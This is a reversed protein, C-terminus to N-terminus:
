WVRVCDEYQCLDDPRIPIESIEQDCDFRNVYKRGNWPTEIFCLRVCDDLMKRGTFMFLTDVFEGNSTLKEHQIQAIDGMVFCRSTEPLVDMQVERPPCVAREAWRLANVTALYANGGNIWKSNIVLDRNTKYTRRDCVERLSDINQNKVACAYNSKTFGKTCDKLDHNIIVQSYREDTSKVNFSDKIVEFATIVKIEDEPDPPCYPKVLIKQCIDDFYISINLEKAMCDLLEGVDQVECFKVDTIVDSPRKCAYDGLSNESLFPEMDEGCCTVSVQDLNACDYMLCRIVNRAHTNEFHKVIEVRDGNKHEKIESGCVGREVLKFNWGQPNVDENICPIVHMMEDGVCIYKTSLFCQDIPGDNDSLFNNSLIFANVFKDPNKNPEKVTADKELIVGIEMQIPQGYTTDLLRKYEPCTAKGFGILSTPDSATFCVGCDKNPGEVRDIFFVSKVMEEFGMNCGGQWVNIRRGEFYKQAEILRALVFGGLGDCAKVDQMCLRISGSGKFMAGPVLKSPSHDWSELIPLADFVEPNELGLHGPVDCNSFWYSVPQCEYACPDQCTNWTALCQKTAGCDGQGNVKSCHDLVLEVIILPNGSNPM